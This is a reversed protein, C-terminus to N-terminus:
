EQMNLEDLFPGTNPRNAYQWKVETAQSWPALVIMIFNTVNTVNAM